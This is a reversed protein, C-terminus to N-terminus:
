LKGKAVLEAQLAKAYAEKKAVDEQAKRAFYVLGLARRHRESPNNDARHITLAHHILLDGPQANVAVEAARDADGYDAIGQSFGLTTTRAHSRVPLKHSGPIYRVCGNAEDAADLALWMTCGENPELMWYYGDQHPPTPQGIRPPKNFWQLNGARVPGDLLLEALGVFPESYMLRGLVPDHNSVDSLQKLTEPRSKDEFMAHARPVFPVIDRVYADMRNRVREIELPNLFSRVVVFGDRRFTARIEESGGVAVGATQKGDM